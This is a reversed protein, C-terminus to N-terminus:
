GDETYSYVLIKLVINNQDGSTPVVTDAAHHCVYKGPLTHYPVSFLQVRDSNKWEQYCASRWGEWNCSPRSSLQGTKFRSQLLYMFRSGRGDRRDKIRSGLCSSILTKLHFSSYITTRLFLKNTKFM